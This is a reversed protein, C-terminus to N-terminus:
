RALFPTPPLVVRAEPNYYDYLVSRTTQAEIGYRLRFSFTFKSGGATPWLYVVLRDPLVDYRDLTWGSSEMARDLSARDVEAGPPLGIEGLLMGYGRFGVREAEVSCKVEAGHDAQPSDYHVALRLGSSGGAMAAVGESAPRKWPLYYEAVVQASAPQGSKQLIEVDNEGVLLSASVDVPIANWLGGIPAGVTSALKGNVRIEAQFADASNAPNEPESPAGPDLSPSSGLLSLAELVNSTAQTSYWLGFRDKGYILFLLGRDILALDAQNMPAIEGFRILAEVALATTELRGATGWGYFPTNTELSWYTASAEEHALTRLRAVERGASEKHGAKIAALAHSAILYPEDIERSRGDLYALARSLAKVAATASEAASAGDKKAPPPPAEALARAVLATLLATRRSNETHDWDLATWRGDAKQQKVLWTRAKELVEPDTGVYRSAQFLFRLAYATLAVDAHGRGWYTMGGDEAQLSVLQSYALELNRHARAAQLTEVQGSQPDHQLLLLSPYAASIIQEGCGVPVDQMSGIAEVVHSMLNPYIKLEARLTGPITAEPIKLRLSGTSRIIGAATVSADEGDPRVMVKREIADSAEPSVATVRQKAEEVSTLAQFPFIVNGSDGSAVKVTHELEGLPKFWEEPKMQVDVSQSKDLFNRVTVPLHIQDNVTLVPPPDYEVFFPQFARIEKEALAVEGDETSAIAALSWTTITDALKFRLTASGNPGVELDPQWYLTEPFYERLRPTALRGGGGGGGSLQKREAPVNRMMRVEASTTQLGNATASVMVTQTSTGVALTVAVDTENGASVWVDSLELARFGPSTVRLTYTGIVLDRLLFSGDATSKTTYTKGGASSTAVVTAGPIGAATQDNVIGRIAGRGAMLTTSQIAHSSLERGSQESIADHFEALTIESELKKKPGHSRITITAVQETVPVTTTKQSATGSPEAHSNVSRRDSYESETALTVYYPHGWPDRLSDWDIGAKRLAERFTAEDRPFNATVNTYSELAADIRSRAEAFYDMLSVWLQSGLDGRFSKGQPGYTNVRIVYFPGQVEFEINYDRGWPDRLKPLDLGQQALERALTSYDRIYGGTRVHYSHAARDIAKGWPRFYPRKLSLATFDDGTGAKKDPGASVIEMVDATAETSFKTAYPTGWPDRLGDFHIGAARLMEALQKENHPYAETKTYATDLASKVPGLQADLVAGFKERLDADYPNVTFIAPRYMWSRRDLLVEALLDLGEPLPKTWDWHSLDHLRFGAISDEDDLDSAFGGFRSSLDSDRRARETVAKDFVVVGLDGAVPNAAAAQLTFVASAEEGPKYVDRGTSAVMTFDKGHPFLVARRGLMEETEYRQLRLSRGLPYAVVTVEDHFRRDPPIELAGTGNHLWLGHSYLVRGQQVADVVVSLDAQDSKVQVSIPEGERFLIKNTEVRIEATGNEEREEGWFYHTNMGSRGHGDNAELVLTFDHRLDVGSIETIKALGYRSTSAAALVPGSPAPRRDEGAKPKAKRVTIKCAAPSGDAYNASIYLVLPLRRGVGYAYVHIADKTLRLDFRRQETRRTSPDTYYAAYSLDYYQTYENLYEKFERRLPVHVQLVGESNAEGEYHPGSEIEWKQERYNWERRVERVVRVSGRPVPKGFLYHASVELEADQGPLYYTRDPKVGVTFQPLEYRSIRVATGRLSGTSDMGDVSVTVMYDGLRQNDPIAWDAHVVGFRSTQLKTQYVSTQEEDDVALTVRANALAIRSSHRAPDRSTVFIVARAHLVQGPQYLPKDTSVVMDVSREIDVDDDLTLRFDGKAAELRLSAKEDLIDVPSSFVLTAYGQADTTAEAHLPANPQSVFTLNGGVHAGAVGQSMVPNIARVLARYHLGGGYLEAGAMRLAFVGPAIAGLAVKGVSPLLGRDEPTLRYDIRYFPLEKSESLKMGSLSFPVPISISTAGMSIAATSRAFAKVEDKPTLFKIEVSAMREAGTGNIVALTLLASGNALELHTAQENIEISAAQLSSHGNLLFAWGALILAWRQHM